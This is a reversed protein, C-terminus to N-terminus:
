LRSAARLLDDGASGYGSGEEELVVRLARAEGRSLTVRGVELARGLVLSLDRHRSSIGARAAAAAALGSVVKRPVVVLEGQLDLEIEEETM